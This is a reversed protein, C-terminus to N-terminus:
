SNIVNIVSYYTSESEVEINPLASKPCFNLVIYDNMGLSYYRGNPAFRAIHENITTNNGCQLIEIGWRRDLIFFDMRGGEITPYETLIPLHLLEQALCLFLENQFAREPIKWDGKKTIVQRSRFAEPSFRSIANMCIQQLSFGPWIAEPEPGLLRRYAVKRHLPSAFIFTTEGRQHALKEAHLLGMKHCFAFEDFKEQTRTLGDPQKAVECLAKMIGLISLHKYQDEELKPKIFHEFRPCWIGRGYECLWEVFSNDGRVLLSQLFRLSLHKSQEKSM